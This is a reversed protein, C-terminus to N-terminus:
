KKSGEILAICKKCRKNHKDDIYKDIDDITNKAWLGCITSFRHNQNPKSFHIVPKHKDIM